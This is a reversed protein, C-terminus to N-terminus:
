LNLLKKANGGLIKEKEEKTFQSMGMDLFAKPLTLNKILNIWEKHSPNPRNKCFPWDTGIVIANPTRDLMYRMRMLFHWLSSVYEYQMAAIDIWIRNPRWVTMEILLDEYGRACHAAIVKLRRYKLLMEDIHQPDGYKVLYPLPDSGEHFLVPVDLEEIKQIFPAVREESPFFWGPFIKVGKLGWKKIGHELLDVADPRMPDVGVFGIIRNPYKQQAEAVYENAKWVSIEPEQKAMFALDAPLCVSIDVGADDMEKILTERKAEFSYRKFEEESLTQRKVERIEDLYRKPWMKEEFIHAHADIIM